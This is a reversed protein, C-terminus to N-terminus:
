LRHYPRHILLDAMLLHSLCDGLTFAPPLQQADALPRLGCVPSRTRPTGDIARNTPECVSELARELLYEMSDKDTGELTQVSRMLALAKELSRIAIKQAETMNPKNM